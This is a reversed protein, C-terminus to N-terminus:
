RPEKGVSPQPEPQSVPHVPGQQADKGYKRLLTLIDRRLKELGEDGIVGSGDDKGDLVQRIRMVAGRVGDDQGRWFAPHAFDTGDAEPDDKYGSVKRSIGTEHPCKGGNQFRGQNCNHCLVRYGKPFGEKELQRMVADSSGGLRNRHQTGGGEIHDLSLFLPETEECCSCKLGGYAELVRRRLAWRRKRNKRSIEQSNNHARNNEKDLCSSCRSKSRERCIPNKGCQGCLGNKVRVRFDRISREAQKDLCKRCGRRGYVVPEGCQCLGKSERNIRRDTIGKLCVPCRSKDTPNPKGCDPCVGDRIMQAYKKKTKM